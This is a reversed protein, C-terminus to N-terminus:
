RNAMQPHDQKLKDLVRQDGRAEAARRVIDLYRPVVASETYSQAYAQYGAEARAQRYAPDSQLRRM